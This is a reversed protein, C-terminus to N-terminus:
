FRDDGRLMNGLMSGEDASHGGGPASAMMRGALRSFPLSQLWVRGPGRLEAFFVGEGGFLMSKLGGAQVVNFGVSETMAAVCGTDVHLVEGAALDREVVCGGMHVFVLGSGSLSQMIFGEGGFLGTLIRKQFFIDIAVGRMACLLSDKQCILRGGYDSLRVPLITGPYPASFALRAPAQGPNGYVTTFVSSGGLARKGASLVSNLFGQSQGQPSGDGFVANMDVVADKYMLAGAEAIVSQGPELTLEVFQTEHGVIAFHPEPMPQAWSQPPQPPPQMAGPQFEPMQQVPLWDTMGPRWCFADPNAGAFALADAQSLPPTQQGNKAFYWQM